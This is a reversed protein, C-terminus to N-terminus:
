TGDCLPAPPVGAATGTGLRCAMMEVALALALTFGVAAQHRASSAFDGVVSRRWCSYPQKRNIKPSRPERLTTITTCCASRSGRRRRETQARRSPHRRRRRAVVGASRVGAPELNVVSVRLWPCSPQLISVNIACLHLVSKTERDERPDM